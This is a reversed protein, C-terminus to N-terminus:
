RNNEEEAAENDHEVKILVVTLDDDLEQKRARKSCEAVSKDLAGQLAGQQADSGARRISTLVKTLEAGASTKSNAWNKLIGDTLLAV